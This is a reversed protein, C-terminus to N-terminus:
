IIDISVEEGCKEDSKWVKGEEEVGNLGNKAGTFSGRGPV